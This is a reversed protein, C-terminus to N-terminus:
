ERASLSLPLSRSLSLFLFLRLIGRSEDLTTSPFSRKIAKRKYRRSLVVYLGLSSLVEELSIYYEDFDASRLTVM